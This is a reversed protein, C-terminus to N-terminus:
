HENIESSIHLYSLNVVTFLRSNDAHFKTRILAKWPFVLLTFNCTINSSFKLQNNISWPKRTAGQRTVLTNNSSKQQTLSWTMISKGLLFKINLLSSLSLSVSIEKTQTYHFSQLGSTWCPLCVM